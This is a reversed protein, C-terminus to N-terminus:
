VRHDIPGNGRGIHLAVGATIAQQMWARAKAVADPLPVARALQATIAAALSCGTGHTNRTAIRPYTFVTMAQGDFFIDVLADNDDGQGHGGKLYVAAGSLQWLAHACARMDDITQPPPTRLLVGIEPLNPTIVQALPLLHQRLADEASQDLLRHGSTAVMVPDVVLQPLPQSHLHEVVADIIAATALMGTKAASIAVDDRLTQLQQRVFSAPLIEVAEVGRTNQATCATIVSCGYVGHSAFTKHDAQIGAGGSPDSGAISLATATM